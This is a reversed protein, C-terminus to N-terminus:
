DPLAVLLAVAMTIQSTELSTIYSADTTLFFVVGSQDSSKVNSTVDKQDNVIFNRNALWGISINVFSAMPLIFLTNKKESWSEKHHLTGTRRNRSWDTWHPLREVAWLLLKSSCFKQVKFISFQLGLDLIIFGTQAKGPWKKWKKMQKKGGWGGM